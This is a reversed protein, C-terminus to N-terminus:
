STAETASIVKLSEKPQELTAGVSMGASLTGPGDNGTAAGVRHLGM